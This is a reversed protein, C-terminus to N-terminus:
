VVWAVLVLAGQWPELVTGIAGPDEIAAVPYAYMRQGANGPLANALNAVWEQRTIATFSSVITPLVLIAGLAAAIGGASNRLIAGVALSFLGILTVYAAGGALTAWLAGDALDVSIDAGGLVPL